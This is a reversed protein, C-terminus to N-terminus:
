EIDLLKKGNCTLVQERKSFHCNSNRPWKPSFYSVRKKGRKWQGASTDYEEYDLDFVLPGTPHQLRLRLWEVFYPEEYKRELGSRGINSLSRGHAIAKDLITEGNDNVAQPNAGAVLLAEIVYACNAGAWAARHLFTDGPVRHDYTEKGSCAKLNM